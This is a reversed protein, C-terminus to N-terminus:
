GELVFSVLSPFKLALQMVQREGCLDDYLIGFMGMSVSTPQQPFAAQCIQLYTPLLPLGYDPEIIICIQSSTRPPLSSWSAHLLMSVNAASMVPVSLSSLAAKLLSQPCKM